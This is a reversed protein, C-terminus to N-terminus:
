VPAQTTMSGLVPAMRAIAEDGIDIQPFSCCKRLTMGYAIKITPSDLDVDPWYSQIIAKAEPDKVLDKLKSDFSLAMISEKRSSIASIRTLWAGRRAQTDHYKVQSNASVM